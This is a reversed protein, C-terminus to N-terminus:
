FTGCDTDKPTAASNQTSGDPFILVKVEVGNEDVRIIPEGEDEVVEFAALKNIPQTWM